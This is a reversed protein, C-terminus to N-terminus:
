LLRIVGAASLCILLTLCARKYYPALKPSFLKAGLFVGLLVVPIFVSGRQLTQVTMLEYYLLSVLTTVMGILLYLILSSRMVEPEIKRSLVYLAVVLGGVSALGTAIGAFLGAILAGYRGGLGPPAFKFLQAGTLVLVLCLATLRSADVPIYTTVALGIPVGTASGVALAAAMKWNASKFSGRFLAVSAAAELVYCIPILEVPPVIAVVSAMVVASLGFGTFGRVLGATLIAATCILFQTESLGSYGAIEALM